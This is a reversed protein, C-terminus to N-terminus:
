NEDCSESSESSSDSSLSDLETSSGSASMEDESSSVEESNEELNGNKNNKLIEKSHPKEKEEEKAKISPIPKQKAAIVEQREKEIEAKTRRKRRTPTNVSTNKNTVKNEVNEVVKVVENKKSVFANIKIESSLNSTLNVCNHSVSMQEERLKELQKELTIIQQTIDIWKKINSQFKDNSDTSTENNNQSKRPM